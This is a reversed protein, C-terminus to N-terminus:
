YAILVSTILTVVMRQAAFALISYGLTTGYLVNHLIFYEYTSYLLFGIALFYWIALIGNILKM